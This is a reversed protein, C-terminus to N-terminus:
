SMIEKEKRVVLDELKKVEEQTIKEMESKFRFRDDESMGGLKEKEQINQWVIDREKRISVKADELKAKAVKMLSERRETTLEPFIVRLGKDDIVVSVGLNGVSIAKEIEKAQSMDWPAIRLTRPDETGITALQNIPMQSGYSEVLVSDLLAQSARGTRLNSFERALWEEIAKLKTKFSSFDYIM